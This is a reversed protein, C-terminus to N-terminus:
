NKVKVPEDDFAVSVDSDTNPVGKSRSWNKKKPIAVVKKSKQITGLFLPPTRHSESNEVFSIRFASNTVFINHPENSYWDKKKKKGM